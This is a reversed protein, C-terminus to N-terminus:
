KFKTELIKEYEASAKFYSLTEGVTKKTDPFIWESAIEALPVLVFLRSSAERHPIILDPSECVLDGFLLIDLDLTRSAYRPHIRPRGAKEELSKCLEFLSEVSDNWYGTVVANLFDPTGPACGVPETRYLSSIRVNEMGAGKLGEAAISFTDKVNGMNGGLGLATQVKLM